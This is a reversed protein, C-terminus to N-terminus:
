EKWGETRGEKSAEREEKGEIGEKRGPGGGEFHGREM